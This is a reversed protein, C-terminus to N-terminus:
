VLKKPQGVSQTPWVISVGLGGISCCYRNQLSARFRTLTKKWGRRFTSKLVVDKSAERPVIRATSNAASLNNSQSPQRGKTEALDSDGPLEPASEV